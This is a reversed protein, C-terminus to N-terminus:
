SSILKTQSFFFDQDICNTTMLMVISTSKRVISGIMHPIFCFQVSCQVKHFGMIFNLLLLPTVALLGLYVLVSRHSLGLDFGKIGLLNEM